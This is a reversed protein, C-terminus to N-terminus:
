QYELFTAKKAEQTPLTAQAFSTDYFFFSPGHLSYSNWMKVLIYDKIWNSHTTFHSDDVKCQTVTLFITKVVYPNKTSGVYVTYIAFSKSHFYYEM